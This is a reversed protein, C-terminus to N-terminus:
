YKNVWEERGLAWQLISSWKGIPGQLNKKRGYRPFVRAVIRLGGLRLISTILMETRYCRAYLSGRTSNLFRWISERMMISSFHSPSKSSSGGGYHIIRAEPVFINNLGLKRIKFCLDADEAYMFYISSFMGAQHFVSARVMICAGSLMEVPEKRAPENMLAATGWLSSKPFLRRLAAADLLQNLLGPLAQVSSIQITRDGNLLMAGAGGVKEDGMVTSYLANLAPGIVETDPNLFLLVEGKALLAAQNNAKAFGVNETLQLFRVDPHEDRLMEACGDYSAGDVVVIEYRLSHTEAKISALCKRLFGVSNWNLIIISLQPPM